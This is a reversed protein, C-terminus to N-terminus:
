ERRRNDEKEDIANGVEQVGRKAINYTAVSDSNDLDILGKRKSADRTDFGCKRCVYAHEEWKMKEIYDKDGKDCGCSPCSKSTDKQPIYLFLGVQLFNKQCKNNIELIRKTYLPALSLSQFKQLLKIEVKSGLYSSDTAIKHINNSISLKEFVVFGLYEKQLHNIIGVINACLANRLNNIRDISIKQVFEKKKLKDYYSQLTDRIHEKSVIDEFREDFYYLPYSAIQGRNKINLSLQITNNKNISKISDSVFEGRTQKEYIIRLASLEKLTLYTAIDGNIIIKGKVLKACSLNLCSATNEELVEADDIFQDISKYAVRGLSNQSLLKDKKIEYYTIQICQKALVTADSKDPSFKFLGLAVLEDKGRDIGYYYMDYPSAINRNFTQNYKQIYDLMDGDTKISDKKNSSHAHTSITTTLLYRDDLLRNQFVTRRSHEFLHRKNEIFSFKLEPNLRINFFDDFNHESWFDWWIKTHYEPSNRDLALKETLNETIERDYKELDYSSIKYCNGQFKDIMNNKIEESIHICRVSYCTKKLASEFSEIDDFQADIISNQLDFSKVSLLEWTRHLSLVDQYFAILEKGDDSCEHKEKWEFCSNRKKLEPIIKEKFTGSPAFCLKDLARLTLSEFYFLKWEGEQASTGKNAELSIIYKHACQHSNEANRPFTAVYKQGQYELIVAWANTREANAQERELGKIEAKIKGLKQALNKYKECFEIFNEFRHQFFKGKESKNEKSSVCSVFKNFEKIKIQHFLKLDQNKQFEDFTINKNKAITKDLLDQKEAKFKKMSSLLCDIPINEIPTKELKEIYEIFGVSHFFERTEKFENQYFSETSKKMSKKKKDLTNEYDKSSKNVTYYNLSATEYVLGLSQSPLCIKELERLIVETDTLMKQMNAIESDENKDVINGNCLEKMFEFNSRRNINRILDAIESKREQNQLPQEICKRLEETISLNEEIWNDFYENLFAYNKDAISVKNSKEKTTQTAQANYFENKTYNRMWSFKISVTKKLRATEHKDDSSKNNSPKYIIDKFKNIIQTYDSVFKTVSQILPPPTEDSKNLGEFARSVRQPVLSFRIAKRQEEYVQLKQM